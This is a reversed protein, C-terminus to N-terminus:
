DYGDYGHAKARKAGEVEGLYSYATNVIGITM